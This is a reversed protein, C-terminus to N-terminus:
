GTATPALTKPRTTTASPEELFQGCGSAGPTYKCCYSMLQQIWRDSNLIEPTEDPHPRNCTGTEGMCTREAVVFGDGACICNGFDLSSSCRDVATDLCAQCEAPFGSYVTEAAGAFRLLIASFVAITGAPVLMTRFLKPLFSWSSPHPVFHYLVALHHGHRSLRLM